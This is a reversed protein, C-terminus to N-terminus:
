EPRVRKECEAYLAAIDEETWQGNSNPRRGLEALIDDGQVQMLTSIMDERIRLRWEELTGPKTKRTLATSKLAGILNGTRKWIKEIADESLHIGMGELAARVISCGSESGGGRSALNRTPRFGQEVLREVAFSIQIDRGRNALRHKRPLPKRLIGSVYQRLSFPLQTGTELLIITLVRLKQDAFVDGNQAREILMNVQTGDCGEPFEPELLGATLIELRLEIEIQSEQRVGPLVRELHMRIFAIAAQAEATM